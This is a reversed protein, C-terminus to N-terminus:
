FYHTWLPLSSAGKLYVPEQHQIGFTFLKVYLKMSTIKEYNKIFVCTTFVLFLKKAIMESFHNIQTGDIYSEVTLSIYYFQKDYSM